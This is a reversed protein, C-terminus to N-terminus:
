PATLLKKLEGIGLWALLAVAGVMPWIFNMIRGIAKSHKEQRETILALKGPEGNLGFLLAKQEAQRSAVLNISDRIEELHAFVDIRFQEFTKPDVPPLNYSTSM